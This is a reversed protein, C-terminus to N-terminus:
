SQGNKAEKYADFENSLKLYIKLLNKCNGEKIYQFESPPFTSLIDEMGIQGNYYDELITEINLLNGEEMDNSFQMWDSYLFEQTFDTLQFRLTKLFHHDM